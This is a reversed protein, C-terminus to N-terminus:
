SGSTDPVIQGGAWDVSLGGILWTHAGGASAEELYFTMTKEYGIHIPQGDRACRVNVHQTFTLALRGGNTEDFAVSANGITHDVIVPGSERFSLGYAGVLGTYTVSKLTDNAAQDNAFAGAVLGRYDELMPATMHDTIGPGEYDDPTEVASFDMHEPVFSNRAAFQSMEDYAAQVKDAGFTDVAPGSFVTPDVNGPEVRSTEAPATPSPSTSASARPAADNSGPDGGCASLILAGALVLTAGQLRRTTTRHM